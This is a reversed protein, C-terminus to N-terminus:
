VTAYFFTVVYEKLRISDRANMRDCFDFPKHNIKAAVLMAYQRTMENRAGAFGRKAMERDIEVLDHASLDLLGALNIETIDEGDYKFPTGLKLKMIGDINENDNTATEPATNEVAGYEANDVVKKEEM